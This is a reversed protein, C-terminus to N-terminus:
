GEEAPIEFRFTTGKGEESEVQIRGGHAEVALKCFALGLGVSPVGAKSRMEVSMFKDFVRGLYERDIVRGSNSVQGVVRAGVSSVHINVTGGPASAKIGNEILNVLVRQMMDPDASCPAQEGSLVLRKKEFQAQGQVVEVAKEALHMLDTRARKLLAEGSELRSIELLSQAMDIASRACNRANLVYETLLEDKGRGTLSEQALDLM